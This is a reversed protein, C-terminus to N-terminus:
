DRQPIWLKTSVIKRSNRYLLPTEFINRRRHWTISYGITFSNETNYSPEVSINEQSPSDAIRRWIQGPRTILDADPANPNLTNTSTSILAVTSCITIPMLPYNSNAQNAATTTLGSRLFYVNM